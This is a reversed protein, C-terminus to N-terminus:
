ARRDPGCETIAISAVRSGSAMGTGSAGPRASGPSIFSSPSNQTSDKYRDRASQGARMPYLCSNFRWYEVGCTKAIANLIMPRTGDIADVTENENGAPGTPITQTPKSHM